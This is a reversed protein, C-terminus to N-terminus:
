GSPKINHNLHFLNDPDLRDKLAVLRKHMEDGYAARVADEGEDQIFNVYYSDLSESELSKYFDRAWQRHRDGDGEDSTWTGVINIDLEADRAGFAASDEPFERVKGGKQFIPAQSKPSTIQQTYDIITNIVPDTFGSLQASKWYYHWGHPVTADVMAQHAVYPKPMIADAVPDAVKRIPALEKEGAEPDGWYGLIMLTAPKGHYEEPVIPLPPALRHNIAAGVDNSAEAIWDRYFRLVEETKDIPWVLPGALVTPGVPHVDFKFRTVIGFNGGGGKLGWLLEPDTDDNVVLVDGSATVLEVETLSDVTLGYKRMLHGIGGGLTLGGVGTHSVVGGTTALGHEQTAADFDGWLAGGQATATKSAPDVSVGNMASLDIMLGGDTLAHGAAAHGGGKVSVETGAEAAVRVATVVDTTTTPQAILGPKRDIDGNWIKRAEDYGDDAPALVRGEFDKELDAKSSENLM